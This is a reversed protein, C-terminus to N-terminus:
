RCDKAYISRRKVEVLLDGNEEEEECSKSKSGLKKSLRNRNNRRLQIVKPEAIKKDAKLLFLRKNFDRQSLLESPVGLIDVIADLENASCSRQHPNEAMAEGLKEKLPSYASTVSSTMAIEDAKTAWRLPSGQPLFSNTPKTFM